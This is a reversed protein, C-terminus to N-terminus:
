LAEPLARILADKFYTVRIHNGKPTSGIYVMKSGKLIAENRNQLMRQNEVVTIMGICRSEESGDQTHIEELWVRTIVVLKTTLGPIRFEPDLFCRFAYLNNKLQEIYMKYATSIGVVRGEPTRVIFVLENLRATFVSPDIRPFNRTWLEMIQAHFPTTGQQWLNEFILGPNPAEM